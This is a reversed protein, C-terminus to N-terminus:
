IQSSERARELNRKFQEYRVRDLASERVCDQYEEPTRPEFDNWSSLRQDPNKARDRIVKINFPCVEQCADCGAVWLGSDIPPPEEHAPSRHELTWYSICKEPDLVRSSRFARTPCGSLCRSCSGCRDAMPKPASGLERDLLVVGIFVYSGHVPHLLLTNKGIWGLGALHAWARELVASTDVCVKWRLAPDEEATETMLAELSEKMELHYDRGSLYAAFQPIRRSRLESPVPPYPRLVCFVSKADKLLLDPRARRELGRKLYEMGQHRGDRIWAEFAAVHVAFGAQAAAIDVGGSEPFGHNPAASKLRELLSHM